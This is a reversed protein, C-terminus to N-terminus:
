RSNRPSYGNLVRDLEVENEGIRRLTGADVRALDNYARILMMLRCIRDIIASPGSRQVSAIRTPAGIQVAKM